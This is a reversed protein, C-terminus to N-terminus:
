GERIAKNLHEVLRDVDVRHISAGEEISEFLAAQCGACGLGFADFIRVTEPHKAVIESIPMRKDIM